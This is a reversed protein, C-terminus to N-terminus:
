DVKDLRALLRWDEHHLAGVSEVKGTNDGMDLSVSAVGVEDVGDGPAVRGEERYKM